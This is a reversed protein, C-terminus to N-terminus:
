GYVYANGTPGRCHKAAPRAYCVAAPTIKMWGLLAKMVPDFSPHNCVPQSAYHRLEQCVAEAAACREQMSTTCKRKESRCSPKEKITSKM